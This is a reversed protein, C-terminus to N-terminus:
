RSRWARIDHCWDSEPRRHISQPLVVMGDPMATLRNGEADFIIVQHSTDRVVRYRSGDCEIIREEGATLSRDSRYSRRITRDMSDANLVGARELDSLITAHPVDEAAENSVEIEGLRGGKHDRFVLLFADRDHDRIVQVNLDVRQTEILSRLAELGTQDAQM